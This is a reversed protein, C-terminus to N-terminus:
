LLGELPDSGAKEAKCMKYDVIAKNCEPSRRGLARCVSVAQDREWQCPDVDAKAINVICFALVAILTAVIAIEIHDNMKYQGRRAAARRTKSIGSSKTVSRCPRTAM